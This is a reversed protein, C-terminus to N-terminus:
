ESGGPRRRANVLEALSSYYTKGKAEARRQAQWLYPLEGVVIKKLEFLNRRLPLSARWTMTFRELDPEIVLTDCVGQLEIDEGRHPLFTVPMSRKPIKFRSHGSPSLNDISVVEGGVLHPVQQDDPACQFYSYSFDAPWFPAKSDIWASDYTGAHKHRPFFNRGVPGFSMPRFRGNTKDIPSSGEATNPLLQGALASRKRIPYFGVGIPNERYTDRREPRDEDSDSGGFARDYSVPTSIFPEPEMASIAFLTDEFRREGFVWFSKKMSGVTLSVPVATAPLGGPAYASGNLIVDCKPKRHSYDTEHLPASLGPEGTFEDAATLKGQEEALTPDEDIAPINYTAKVAVIILERGDPEFGFTWGAQVGSLNLFEM